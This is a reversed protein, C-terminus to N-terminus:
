GKVVACAQAVHQDVKHQSEYASRIRRDRGVVYTVRRALGILPWRVRYARLISGSPDGVTPFPLDLSKRFRDSTDQADASVGIV